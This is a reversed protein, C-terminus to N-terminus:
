IGGYCCRDIIISQTVDREVSVNHFMVCKTVTCNEYWYFYISVESFTSVLISRKRRILQTDTMDVMETAEPMMM